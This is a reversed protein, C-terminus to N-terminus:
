QLVSYYSIIATVITALALIITFIALVWTAKTLSRTQEIIKQNDELLKSNFAGQEKISKEQQKIFLLEKIYDFFISSEPTKLGGTYSEGQLAKVLDEEPTNQNYKELSDKLTM